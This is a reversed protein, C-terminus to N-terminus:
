FPINPMSFYHALICLTHWRSVLTQSPNRSCNSVLELPCDTALWISLSFSCSGNIVGLLFNTPSLCLPDINVPLLQVCYTALSHFHDLHCCTHTALKFIRHLGLLVLQVFLLGLPPLLLFGLPSPFPALFLMVILTLLLFFSSLM